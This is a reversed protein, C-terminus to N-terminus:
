ELAEYGDYYQHFATKRVNRDPSTQFSMYSSHTLEVTEGKENVVTGFKMDADQMQRFIKSASGAMESQMALLREETAGLTHPKFRVIQELLLKYPALEPANIYEDLIEAPIALIEPRIYSAAQGAESSAQMLRGMMRQYVSNSQDEATKLMAYYGLRTATRDIDLDFRICEALMAPSEALKGQFAAYGPFQEKWAAFTTEWAEDNPFLRSLDWTYEVPVESRDLLKKVPLPEPPNAQAATPTILTSRGAVTAAAGIGTMKLFNRRDM